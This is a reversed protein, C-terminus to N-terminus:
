PQSIKELRQVVETYVANYRFLIDEDHSDYLGMQVDKMHKNAVVSQKIMEYVLSESDLGKLMDIYDQGTLELM